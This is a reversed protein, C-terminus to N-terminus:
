HAPRRLLVVLLTPPKMLTALANSLSTSRRAFMKLISDADLRWRRLLTPRGKDVGAAVVEDM